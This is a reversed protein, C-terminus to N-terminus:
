QKQERIVKEVKHAESRHEQGLLPTLGGRQVVARLHEMTRVGAAELADVTEEGVGYEDLLTRLLSARQRSQPPAAPYEGLNRHVTLQEEQPNLAVDSVPVALRGREGAPQVVVNAVGGVDDYVYLDVVEGVLQGDAGYVAWGIANPYTGLDAPVADKRDTLRVLAM